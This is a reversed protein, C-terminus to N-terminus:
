STRGRSGQLSGPRRFPLIDLHRICLPVVRSALRRTLRAARDARFLALVPTLKMTRPELEGHAPMRTHANRGSRWLLLSGELRVPKALVVQLSRKKRRSVEEGRTRVYRSHAAKPEGPTWQRCRVSRQAHRACPVITARGPIMGSVSLVTTGALGPHLHEPVKHGENTAM